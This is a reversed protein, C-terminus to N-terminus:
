LFLPGGGIFLVKDKAALEDDLKLEVLFGRIDENNIPHRLKEEDAHVAVIEGVKSCFIVRLYCSYMPMGVKAADENTYPVFAFPLSKESLSARYYPNQELTALIKDLAAKERTKNALEKENRSVKLQVEALERQLHNIRALADLAVTSSSASGKLTAAGATLDAVQRDLAVTSLRANTATMQANVIQARARAAAEATILGAKLEADISKNVLANAAVVDVAKADDVRKQVTLAVLNGAMRKDATQQVLVAATYRDIMDVLKEQEQVLVANEAQLSDTKVGLDDAAQKTRFVDGTLQLIRQHTKSILVPAAWSQNLQFLGTVAFWASAGLLVGSLLVIALLRYSNVALKQFPTM